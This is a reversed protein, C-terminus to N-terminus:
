SFRLFYNYLGLLVSTPTLKIHMEESFVGGALLVSIVDDMVGDSVMLFIIDRTCM